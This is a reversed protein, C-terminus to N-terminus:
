KTYKVYGAKDQTASESFGKSVLQTSSLGNKLYVTTTASNALLYGMYTSNNAITSSDITVTQLRSCGDFADSGIRTASAGITLSTIASCGRFAFDGIVDTLGTLNVEGSIGSCGNFAAFGVSNLKSMNVSGTIGTCGNFAYPGVSTVNSLNLGTIKKYNTFQAGVSTVDSPVTLTGDVLVNNIYLNRASEFIYPNSTIEIGFWEKLTGAYYVNSLNCDKFAAVGISTVNDLMLDGFIKVCGSFAYIGINTANSLNLSSVVVNKCDAFAYQGISTVNELDLSILTQCENFAYEGITAGSAFSLSSILQNCGSFARQGVTALNQTNIVDFIQSGNFAYEGVSTASTLNAFGKFSTCGNFAYDGITTVNNLNIGNLSTKGKFANSSITTTSPTLAVHKINSSFAYAPVQSVAEPLKVLTDSITTGATQSSGSPLTTLSSIEESPAYEEMNLYYSFSCNTAVNLNTGPRISFFVDMSIEDQDSSDDAKKLYSYSTLNVNLINRLTDSTKIDSGVALTNTTKEEEGSYFYVGLNKNSLNKIHITLKTCVGSMKSNHSIALTPITLDVGYISQTPELIQEGNIYGSIEINSNPPTIHVTGGLTSNSPVSAYVGIGVIGVCLILLLVSLFIKQKKM